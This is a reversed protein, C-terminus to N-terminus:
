ESEDESTVPSDTAEALNELMLIVESTDDLYYKAKSPKQGVTCAFVNTNVSLMNRSIANGIIEFMDEDSRDDGICLVFDAQKGSEAMSTFIKEAVLGKSAEQPKVEVIYQGSKVAVPENALVSELHDLMEKAQAFGFGPDADRYQWVLASEKTEISSGDTAETYLKMVPEAMQMWGFDNSHGCTQWEVDGPWRMFYGHEAAIGLKKCPSFAKSLSERGRGSVIFVKNNADGSLTNLISIVERSPTKIISNQPMVTGDYDLLIARNKAKIYASVIDDISLKRFNPDLSVVRFGFGLGIGWCRKRFHDACTREMDQLFSKSWYGVNHTSVYRYHKEHRLQKEAESMSIAENMAEATAEVNWPNVRIAGSLSPSCGIFESVVLMSKKPENSDSGTESGSIGERCVIYEYPTLNLGDRVATVVVCEAISYYAVRENIGLPSDIYVIPQYGPKGFQDNIRKCSEEIEAQIEDLYIGGKGRAPNAIQVLVARGQWSPHTKLLQEMALLKLNIAKFVDMDDVGLFVTKGEFQQKLEAVRWEKDALKMVSEIQGMHIGVPMIKIGVTRGYYDLGIYGRKSQYELGFMRSCCSLFHRAYDFTHFGILDSNLLAKLIEERVPLTRYIESSPFPSHLFFGMRLRNFRRRLFTPLVMLHYDHIWVFDDEPNIVEIVKQSFLKNAAVYAEWMSRDFRGGHDVSFPLMYHFLPWLQKKCFGDYFKEILNPPLFTPVCGFRDLLVQAVDDQEIPDVDVNLSGVYLVEMEDPLGDKIRLLLSEEDWSFSWGKNDVRRKSKLPLQNAVIIMRDMALSSPNDSAVSSAQDDDLETISGPVTMVRPMMKRRERERGMVPFNGSALELLNTYSRSQM